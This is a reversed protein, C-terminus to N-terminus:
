INNKAIADYEEQTLESKLFDDDLLKLFYDCSKNTKLVFKNKETNTKINDKLKFHNTVFSILQNNSINKQIVKSSEMVKIFKRARSPNKELYKFLKDEDEIIELETIKEFNNRTRERIVDDFQYFKELIEYKKIYYESNYRIIDFKGTIQILQDIFMEFRQDSKILRIVKGQKILNIPYFKSYLYISGDANGIKAIIADVNELNDNSFSFKRIDEDNVVTNVSLFPEREKDFDYKYIVNKREDAESLNLLELDEKDIIETEIDNKYLNLIQPLVTNDIDALKVEGNKLRFYIVASLTEESLTDKLNEILTNM